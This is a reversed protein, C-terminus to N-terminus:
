IHILSLFGLDLYWFTDESGPVPAFLSHRAPDIAPGVPEPEPRGLDAQPQRLSFLGNSSADGPVFPGGSRGKPRHPATTTRVESGAPATDPRDRPESRRPPTKEESAFAKFPGVLEWKDAVPGGPGMTCGATALTIVGCAIWSIRGFFSKM